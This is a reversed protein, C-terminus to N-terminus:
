CVYKTLSIPPSFFEGGKYEKMTKVVRTISSLIPSLFYKRKVNIRVVHRDPFGVGNEATCAYEGGDQRTLWFCKCM